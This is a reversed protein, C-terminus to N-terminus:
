DDIIRALNEMLAKGMLTVELMPLFDMRINEPKSPFSLKKTRTIRTVTKGAPVNLVLFELNLGMMLFGITYLQNIKYPNAQVLVCLMDRITRPLKVMGNDLYKDDIVLVDQKGVEACGIENTFKTFLIDVKAGVVKRERRQIFELSRGENKGLASSVSMREGLQAKVEGKKFVRYVFTWLTHLLDSESFDNTNLLEREEFLGAANM